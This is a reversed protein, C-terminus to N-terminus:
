LKVVRLPKVLYDDGGAKLGKVRDDVDSLASLILIPTKNEAVRLTQIITLGDVNPLMLDLIM